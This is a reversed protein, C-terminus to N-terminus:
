EKEARLDNWVIVNLDNKESTVSLNVPKDNSDAAVLSGIADFAIASIKGAPVEAQKVATKVAACVAKWIDTSNQEIIHPSPSHTPIPRSVGQALLNGKLDFVGARANRATVDIGVVFQSPM